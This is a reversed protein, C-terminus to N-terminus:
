FVGLFRALFWAAVFVLVTMGVWFINPLWKVNRGLNTRVELAGIGYAFDQKTNGICGGLQRLIDRLIQNKEPELGLFSAYQKIFGQAYVPSILRDVRGEEIAQLFSIRISTANEIEKLSLNMEGRRVKFLEGMENISQVM